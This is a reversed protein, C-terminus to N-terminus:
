WGASIQFEGDDDEEINLCLVNDNLLRRMTQQARSAVYPNDDYSLKELVSFSLNHNEALAYRVDASEDDTLMFQVAIPCNCHDIVAERVEVYASLALESLIEETANPSNAILLQRKRLEAPNLTDGTGAIMNLIEKTDPDTKMGLRAIKKQERLASETSEVTDVYTELLSSLANIAVPDLKPLGTYSIRNLKDHISKRHKWYGNDAQTGTSKLDHELSEKNMTVGGATTGDSENEAHLRDKKGTEKVYNLSM